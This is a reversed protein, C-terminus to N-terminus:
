NRSRRSSNARSQRGRADRLIGDMQSALALRVDRLVAAATTLRRAPIDLRLRARLSDETQLIRRIATEGPPRSSSSRRAFM